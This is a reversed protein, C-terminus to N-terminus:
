SLLCRLYYKAYNFRRQLRSTLDQPLMLFSRNVMEQSKIYVSLYKRPYSCKRVLSTADRDSLNVGFATQHFRKIIEGKEKMNRKKNQMAFGGEEFTVFNHNVFCGTHGSAVLRLMLDYDSAIAYALDYGGMELLDEKRFMMSQHCIVNFVFAKHLRRHPCRLRLRGSEKKAWIPAFSFSCGSEELARMSVSLGDAQHYHDDSNLFIVYKGRALAIGRNMAEYIGSDAKSLICIDHCGNKYALLFDLTGDTSAGDIILHEVAVGTQGQVSDLNEALLERRGAKLPNFCVTVVTVDPVKQGGMSIAPKSILESQLEKASPIYSHM